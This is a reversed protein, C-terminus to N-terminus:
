YFFVVCQKILLLYSLCISDNKSHKGVVAENLEKQRKEAELKAQKERQRASVRRNSVLSAVPNNVKAEKSPPLFLSEAIQSEQFHLM